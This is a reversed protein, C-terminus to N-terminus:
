MVLHAKQVLDKWREADRTIFDAFEQRTMLKADLGQDLLHKQVDPLALVANIQKHLFEIIPKPVDHRAVISYFGVDEYGPLVEAIAPM